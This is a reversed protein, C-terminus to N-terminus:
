AGHARDRGVRREAALGRPAPKATWQRAHGGIPEIDHHSDSFTFAFAIDENGDAGIWHKGLGGGSEARPPQRLWRYALWSGDRLPGRHRRARPANAARM